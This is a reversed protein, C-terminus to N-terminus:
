FKEVFLIYSIKIDAHLMLDQHIYMYPFPHMFVFFVVDAYFTQSTPLVSNEKEKESKTCSIVFCLVIVLWVLSAKCVDYTM